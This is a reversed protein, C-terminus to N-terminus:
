KEECKKMHIKVGKSGRFKDGCYFCAVPEVEQKGNDDDLLDDDSSCFVDQHIHLLRLLEWFYDKGDRDCMQKWLYVPLYSELKYNGCEPLTRKVCHWQGEIRNTHVDTTGPKVFNESHNVYDWEYGEEGLTKYAQWGDTIIRSGIAVNDKIIPLLTAKDRKNGPCVVLFVEKTERCVGGLVWM